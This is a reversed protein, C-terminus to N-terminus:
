REAMADREAPHEQYYKYAEGFNKFKPKATGVQGNPAV